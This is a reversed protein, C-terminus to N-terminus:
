TIRGRVEDLGTPTPTSGPDPEDGERWKVGTSPEERAGGEFSASTRQQMQQQCKSPAVGEDHQAM